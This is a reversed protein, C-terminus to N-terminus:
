APVSNQSEPDSAELPVPDICRAVTKIVLDSPPDSVPLADLSNLLAEV